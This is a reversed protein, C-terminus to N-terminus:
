SIKELMYKAVAETTQHRLLHKRMRESIDFYQDLSFEKFNVSGRNAGVPILDGAPGETHYDHLGMSRLTESTKNFSNKCILTSRNRDYRTGDTLAIDIGPMKKIEAFIEKPYMTMTLPPCKEIDLHFPLTGCAMIELHRNCDHGGKAATYAFLSNSYDAYYESENTYKYTYLHPTGIVLPAFDYKRYFKIPQIKEKPIGFSIPIVSHHPALLERKFYYGLHTLREDIYQYNNCEQAKDNGDLFVVTSKNGIHSRIAELDSPRHRYINGFIVIDFYNYQLKRGLETRDIAINPLTKFLTFGRGYLHSKDGGEIMHDMYGADVVDAGYLSRLGHFVGDGLYDPGNGDPIYLIKM